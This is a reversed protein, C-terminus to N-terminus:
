SIAVGAVVRVIDSLNHVDYTPRVDPPFNLGYQNFWCTDLGANIGGAIDSSLSDGVMLVDQRCDQTGAITHLVEFFRVDPKRFGMEGSIGVGSFYKRIGTRELRSHQVEPYGNTALYLRVGMGHLTELLSIAGPILHDSEGLHELFLRGAKEAPADIGMYTFFRSFRETKLVEISILGQEHEKWIAANMTKYISFAEAAMGDIGLDHMCMTFAMVEGAPFDLLTDDADIFVIPYKM